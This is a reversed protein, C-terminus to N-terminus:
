RAELVLVQPKSRQVLRDLRKELLVVVSAAPADLGHVRFAYLWVSRLPARAQEVDMAVHLGLGHDFLMAEQAGDSSRQIDLDNVELRRVVPAPLRAARGVVALAEPGRVDHSAELRHTLGDEVRARQERHHEVLRRSGDSERTQREAAGKGRGECAELWAKSEGRREDRVHVHAREESISPAM